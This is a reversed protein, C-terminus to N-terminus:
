LRYLRIKKRLTARSLGLLEAARVQNRGTVALARRILVEEVRDVIDHFASGPARPEQDSLRQELARRVARQLATETEERGPLNTEQLSDGLDDPTIVKGRALVSARKIVNELQGVNGPWPHEGFLQAVRGDVGKLAKNLEANCRRIFHTVLEPIDEPRERLPPLEISIVRLRDYLEGTFNGDSVEETLERETAAIIRTDVDVSAAGGVRDLTKDVLVRLLRSQLPLSMAEIDDLFLTGGRTTELKGLPIVERGSAGPTEHGFLERELLAEPMSRCNLPSFSKERRHSNFHITKAVSQKGVGREGVILVPFDNTTLLGIRKYAEQMPASKGVLNVLSYKGWEESEGRAERSLAQAELAKDIVSAVIDLDLPKTLYEYAGLRVAEISTQSTGYATMIIVCVDPDIERISRLAELGDTGPMRIDMIVLDPRSEVVVKLADSANSAIHPVHGQESLFQIFVSCISEDDDVILIAAVTTGSEM